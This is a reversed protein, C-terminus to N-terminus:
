RHMVACLEVDTTDGGSSTQDTRFRGLGLVLQWEAKIDPIVAWCSEGPAIATAAWGLEGQRYQHIMKAASNRIRPGYFPESPLKVLCKFERHDTGQRLSLAPCHGILVDGAAEALDNNVLTFGEDVVDHGCQNSIKFVPGDAADGSVGDGRKDFSEGHRGLEGLRQNVLHLHLSTRRLETV